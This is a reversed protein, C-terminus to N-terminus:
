GKLIMSLRALAEDLRPRSVAYCLRQYGAFSRGFACGPALGLAGDDILRRAFTMCDPEGDVRFFSFFGSHPLTAHVNPHAAFFEM